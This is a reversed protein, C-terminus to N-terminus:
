LQFLHLFIACVSLEGLSVARLCYNSIQRLIVHFVMLFCTHGLWNGANERSNILEKVQPLASDNCILVTDLLDRQTHHVSM